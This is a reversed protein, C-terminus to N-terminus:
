IEINFLFKLMSYLVKKVHSKVSFLVNFFRKKKKPLIGKVLTQDGASVMHQPSQIASGKESEGVCSDVINGNEHDSNNKNNISNTESGDGDSVINETSCDDKDNCKKTLLNQELQTDDRGGTASLDSTDSREKLSIQLSSAM